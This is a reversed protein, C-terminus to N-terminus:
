RKKRKGSRSTQGGFAGSAWLVFGGVALGGLILAVPPGDDPREPPKVPNVFIEPPPRWDPDIAGPQPKPVPDSAVVVPSPAPPRVPVPAPATGPIALVLGPWITYPSRNQFTYVRSGIRVTRGHNARAIEPWRVGYRAGIRSLTDGSRVTYQIM